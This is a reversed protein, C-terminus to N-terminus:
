RKVEEAGDQDPITAPTNVGSGGCESGSQEDSSSDDDLSGGILSSVGKVLRPMDIMEVLMEEPVHIGFASDVEQALEMGLLSDIGLDALMSDPRIEDAEVGSLEAILAKLRGAVDVPSSAKKPQRIPAAQAPVPAPAATVTSPPAPTEEVNDTDDDDDGAGILSAVGKILRPMDIMEVLMDEPVHIKFASDVEQALEMGLLSDIGLDALMSDPRIEDADAGSLEAILAKLKQEVDVSPARSKTKAKKAAPKSPPTPSQVAVTQPVPSALKVSSASAVPKKPAASLSPTLRVLLRAMSTRTVRVFSIGSIVEVLKETDPDFVYIDSVVTKNTPKQHHALVNLTKARRTQAMSPNRFWQGMGNCVYMENAPCDSLCSAWVGVVQCFYDSMFADFWSEMKVKETVQGASMDKTSVIKQIGRYEDTYEVVHSFLKYISPCRLSEEIGEGSLLYECQKASVLRGLRGFELAISNDTTSHLLITGSTAVSIGKDTSATGATSFLRFKFTPDRSAASMDEFEIWLGRSDDVTVPAGCVIDLLQPERSSGKLEPHLNLLSEIIMDLQVTVPCIAATNAFTHGAVLELYKPTSANVRFRAKKKAADRYEVFSTLTDPLKEDVPAAEFVKVAAPAQDPTKLELWHRNKEFQYPPLNLPIQHKAQEGHHGWFNVSLGANWLSTTSEVLRNWNSGNEGAINIAQFHSSAPSGLARSAMVTITSNTGAELFICEPHQKTIRKLAHEFFVPSRLHNAFFDSNVKLLKGATAHELAIKPERFTLGQGFERLSDLLPDTLSCHFSNTVNLRKSKMKGTELQGIVEAVADIAKSAGALTFSRPGNYCAISAAAVNEKKCAEGATELIKQLEPLDAEVAMMAGKEEGWVDRVLTARHIVARLTDELSLVQAISLATLEGFSHGILATPQVGCDIWSRASAYQMAFLMVQLKVTDKVPEREFIEPYISAAGLSQAVYDVTDLHKRLVSAGGYTEKDLGIFTSVQGGFCLVVPKKSSAPRAVAVQEGDGKAFKNLNRELENVSKASFILSQTLSRNSQNAANFSLNGIAGPQTVLATKNRNIYEALAGANRRISGADLGCLWFPYQAVGEISRAAMGVRAPPQTVVMSANSGSAGYNNILAVKFPANWPRPSTPIIIKDSAAINTNLSQFSAQAPIMGKQMMLIVKILSMIGSTPETHGIFGKASGLHLAEIRQKTVMVQKISSYEAPDGVATGTGHAEVVSIDTPDIKATNTVSQFLDSLSPSNPVFIPTCNQNQQVATAAIVGLVQDGDRIATSLRKLFVTAVGDGRCYGDGKSDFPKCQGTQSLFSAGALNQFRYPSTMISTGGALAANCQGSLIARCAMDISVASGSCATDIVMGPGTWGFFHSIKGANFGELNGTAAFANAPHSAVNNEYDTGCHAIYVGINLDEPAPREQRKQFYGSQEVTQYAIQLLIRQQPDTTAAERPSTKFFKHDFMEPERAFNAFWKRKPDVSRFQTKFSFRDSDMDIERHQSRGSALVDWFEEVSDAGAVKCAMGVVAIDTDPYVGRQRLQRSSAKSAARDSVALQDALHITQPGLAAALSPPVCREQGLSVLLASADALITERIPRLASHWQPRAILIADLIHHHLSGATIREGDVNSRTPRAVTTADPLQFEVHADCFSKLEDVVAQHTASHYRGRLGIESAVIGAARLEAKLAQVSSLPATVTSRNHDYSVSIYADPHSELIQSLKEAKAGTSCETGICRAPQPSASGDQAFGLDAVAGVLMGLRVAAAGYQAFQSASTASAAVFAGLLGTCFGLTEINKDHTALVDVRDDQEVSRAELLSVYQHLQHLVVLPVLVKNPLPFPITLAHGQSFAAFVKQLQSAGLEADASSVGITEAAARWQNALDSLAPTAWQFTESHTINSRLKEFAATDFSLSLSGFVLFTPGAQRATLRPDM